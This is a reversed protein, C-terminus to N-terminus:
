LGVSDTNFGGEKEREALRRYTEGQASSKGKLRTRVLGSIGMYGSLRNEWFTIASFPDSM